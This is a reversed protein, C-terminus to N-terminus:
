KRPKASETASMKRFSQGTLQVIKLANPSDLATGLDNLKALYQRALEPKTVIEAAAKDKVAVALQKLDKLGTMAMSLLRERESDSMRPLDKESKTLPSSPSFLPGTKPNIEMFKQVAGAKDGRKLLGLSQELPTPTSNTIGAPMSASQEEAPVATAMAALVLAMLARAPRPLIGSNHQKSNM